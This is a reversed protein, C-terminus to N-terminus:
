GWLVACASDAMIPIGSITKILSVAVVSIEVVASAAVTSCHAAPLCRASSDKQARCRSLPPQGPVLPAPLQEPTVCDGQCNLWVKSGNVLRPAWRRQGGGSWRQGSSVPPGLDRRRVNVASRVPFDKPPDPPRGRRGALAHCTNEAPEGPPLRSRWGAPPGPTDAPM